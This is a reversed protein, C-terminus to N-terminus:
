ARPRRGPAHRRVAGSRRVPRDHGEEVPGALGRLRLPPRPHPPDGARRGHEPRPRPDGGRRAPDRGQHDRPLGDAECAGEAGAGRAPALRHGRGRPGRGDRAPARRRRRAEEEARRGQDEQGRGRRVAGPLRPRRRGGAAVLVRGQVQGPHREGAQPPRPHAGGLGRGRVWGRPLGPHDQGQGAVRRDRAPPRGQVQPARCEKELPAGSSRYEPLTVAGRPPRDFSVIM